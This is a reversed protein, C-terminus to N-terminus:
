PRPRGGDAAPAAYTVDRRHLAFGARDYVGLAGTPNQTDVVLSSRAFGVAAATRLAHALLAGALGRRRWERVTGVTAIYLDRVGTALTDAEYEYALLYGAVTGDATTAAVSCDARFHRSGTRGHVWSAASVPSSGFHDAFAANHAARLREDWRDGDFGPGLPHLELGEPLPAPAVPEALDRRLESWWRLPVLGADRALAVSDAKHEPTRVEPRLGRRGAERLAVALLSTGIGRGRHSPVVEAAVHLREGLVHLVQAAVPRDGDFVMLTDRDLDREPDALEEACDEADYFEGLGDAEEAANRVAALHAADDVRM